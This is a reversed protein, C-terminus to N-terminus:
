TARFAATPSAARGPSARARPPWRRSAWTRCTARPASTGPTPSSSADARTCAAFPPASKQPPQCPTVELHMTTTPRLSIAQVRCECGQRAVSLVMSTAGGDDRNKHDPGGGPRAPIGSQTPAHSASITAREPQLLTRKRGPNGAQHDQSGGEAGTEALLARATRAAKATAPIGFELASRAHSQCEKTDLSVGSNLELVQVIKIGLLGGASRDLRGRDAYEACIQHSGAM